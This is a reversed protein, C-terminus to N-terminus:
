VTLTKSQKLEFVINNILDSNAIKEAHPVFQWRKKRMARTKIWVLLRPKGKKGRKKWIGHVGKIEAIFGSNVKAVAKSGAKKKLINGYQTMKPKNKLIPILRVPANGGIIPWELYRAQIRKVVIRATRRNPTAKFLLMSSKTFPTPRDIEQPMSSLEKAHIDVITKNAGAIVSGILTQHILKNLAKATPAIGTSNITIM